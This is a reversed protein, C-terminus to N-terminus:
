RVVRRITAMSSTSLTKSRSPLARPRSAFFFASFLAAAGGRGALPLLWAGRQIEQRRLNVYVTSLDGDPPLPRRWTGVIVRLGAANM